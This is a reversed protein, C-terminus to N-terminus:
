TTFFLAIYLYLPMFFTEESFKSIGETALHEGEEKYIIQRGCNALFLFKCILIGVVSNANKAHLATIVEVETIAFTIPRM